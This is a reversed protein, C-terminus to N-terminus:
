RWWVVKRGEFLEILSQNVQDPQEIPPLHGAESVMVTRAGPTRM